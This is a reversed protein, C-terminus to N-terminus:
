PEIQIAKPQNRYHSILIYISVLLIWLPFFLFVWGLRNIQGIRFLMILALLIGLIPVWRPFSRTRLFLISSSIMFVGAMRTAYDFMMFRSFTWGLDFLGSAVLRDIQNGYMLLITNLAGTAVFLTSLFLLGSSFFVTALFQDENEGLYDRLVAMFWIFMLGAFPILNFSLLLNDRQALVGSVNEAPSEPVYIILQFVSIFLLVAFLIGAIAAARPARLRAYIRSREQVM